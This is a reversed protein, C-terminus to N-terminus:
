THASLYTEAQKLDEPTDIGPALQDTEIMAIRYGHALARLQELKEVNELPHSPLSKWAELFSSRYAYLGLHRFYINKGLWTEPPEDRCHPIVSRSFYLARNGEDKVVKVISPDELEALSTIPTCASGMDPQDEQHMREVLQDVVRPDIFPEDGQLNVILEASTGTVAEAIRDTGSPHDRRTLCVEFGAQHVVDYIQQDDTAVLVKDVRKPKHAQRVTRIILPEGGLPALMKKPFRTSAMRAPVVAIVSM